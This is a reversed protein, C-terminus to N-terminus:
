VILNYGYIKSKSWEFHPNFPTTLTHSLSLSLSDWDNTGWDPGQAPLAKSVCGFDRICSQEPIFTTGQEPLAIVSVDRCVSVCAGACVTLTSVWILHSLQLLSPPPIRIRECYRNRRERNRGERARGGRGEVWPIQDTQFSHLLQVQIWRCSVTKASPVRVSPEVKPYQSEGQHTHTHTDLEVTPPLSAKRGQAAAYILSQPNIQYIRQTRAYGNCVCAWACVCVCSSSYFIIASMGSRLVACPCEDYVRAFAQEGPVQMRFVGSTLRWRVCLFFQLLCLVLFM